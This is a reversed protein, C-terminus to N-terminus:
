SDTYYFGSLLCYYSSVNSYSLNANDYYLVGYSVSGGMQMVLEASAHGQLRGSLYTYISNGRSQFPLGGIHCQSGSSQSDFNAYFQIHVVNGIKTYTASMISSFGNGGTNPTTPTWSGQEYDDLANAEATDGNFCIGGSARVRLREGYTGSSRTQVVFDSSYGDGVSVNKLQSSGYHGSSSTSGLIIGSYGGNVGSANFINIGNARNASASYATNDTRRIDLQTGANAVATSDGLITQGSSNITIDGDTASATGAGLHLKRDNHDYTIIGDTNTQDSFILRSQSIDNPAQISIAADGNSTVLIGNTRTEFKVANDYMLRINGGGTADLNTEWAGDKYNQIYFDANTGVYMRWYDANDDGDDAQIQLWAGSGEAGQIELRAAGSQSYLKCGNSFTELKKSGDYYVEGGQNNLIRIGEDSSNPRILLHNGASSGIIKNFSGDHFIQLDAGTGINLKGNDFVEINGTAQFTGTVAAGYSATEFKPSNDYYLVTKDNSRFEAGYETNTTMVYLNGTKNKVYSHSGSHWIELDNGTGFRATENDAFDIPKTLRANALSGSAINSANTTDTTASTALGSIKSTAIAASSNIDANVIDLSALKTKAIAASPNIDANVIEGDKIGEQLIKTLAM